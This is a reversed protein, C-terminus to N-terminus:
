PKDEEDQLVALALQPWVLHESTGRGRHGTGRTMIIYHSLPSWQWVWVWVPAHGAGSICGSMGRGQEAAINAPSNHVNEAGCLTM